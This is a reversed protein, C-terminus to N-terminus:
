KVTVHFQCTKAAPTGTEWARKYEADIEITGAADAKYVYVSTGGAGVRGKRGPPASSVFNQKVLSAQGSQLHLDWSYGTSANSPLEIAFTEGNKVSITNFNETLTQMPMRKRIKKDPM